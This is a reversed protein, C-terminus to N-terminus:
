GGHYDNGEWESKAWMPEQMSIEPEAEQVANCGSGDAKKSGSEWSYFLGGLVVILRPLKPIHFM